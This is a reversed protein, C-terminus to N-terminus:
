LAASRPQQRARDPAAVRTSWPATPLSGPLRVGLSAAFFLVTGVAFSFGNCLNHVLHMVWVRTAFWAGRKAFFFRYYRRNAATLGAVALMLVVLSRMDYPALVVSGLAVYALLVSLRNETRLNLDNGLAGYQWILQTWPIGRDRVDSVIASAITWRKL